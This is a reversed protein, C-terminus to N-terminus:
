HRTYERNLQNQKHALDKSIEGHATQYSIKSKLKVKISLFARVTSELRDLIHWYLKDELFSIRNSTTFKAKVQRSHRRINYKKQKRIKAYVINACNLNNTKELRKLKQWRIPKVTTPEMLNNYQPLKKPNRM